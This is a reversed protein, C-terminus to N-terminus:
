HHMDIFGIVQMRQVVGHHHEEADFRDGSPSTRRVDVGGVERDEGICFRSWQDYGVGLGDHVLVFTPLVDPVVNTNSLYIM